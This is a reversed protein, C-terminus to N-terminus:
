SYNNIFEVVYKIQDETLNTSCPINIVRNIIEESVALSSSQCNRYMPLKKMPTWIPRVDIGNAHFDQIVKDKKDSKDANLLLTYFWHNSDKPNEPLYFSFWEDNKILKKYNFANEEKVKLFTTLQELQAVGLAALINVMRYNYGVEDHFFNLGDTKATTSLHKIRDAEEQNDTVIMGGGGSTMIKNGNFSFCGIDSLTGAFKGNKQAGLAESADEIIFLNFERAIETVEDMSCIHGFIHVPVIAKVCKGTNKNITQGNSNFSTNESLWTRLTSPDIGLDKWQSDIFVPDAGTYNIANVPAVFTLNPVLVEDGAGIGKILFSLHLASTGNSVAIARKAGVFKAFEDEFRGVFPGATSVFNTDICEQLYKSENGALNPISLPIKGM